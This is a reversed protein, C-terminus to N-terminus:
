LNFHQRLVEDNEINEAELIRLSEKSLSFFERLLKIEKKCPYPYIWVSRQLPYFNFEKLKGRFAERKIRINEPIDFIVLRWKKDWRKQPKIFLDNIQYKGAIQRGEETLSIYIQKNHKEIKILGKKKLYYFTDRIQRKEKFNFKKTFFKKYIQIWFYPSQTAILFAGGILLQGLIKQVINRERM